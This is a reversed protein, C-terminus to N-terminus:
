AADSQVSANIFSFDIKGAPGKQSGFPHDQSLSVADSFSLSADSKPEPKDALCRSTKGDPIPLQLQQQNAASTLANQKGPSANQQEKRDQEVCQQLVGSHDTLNAFSVM